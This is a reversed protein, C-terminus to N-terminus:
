MFASTTTILHKLSEIPEDFTAKSSIPISDLLAPLFTRPGTVAVCNFHVVHIAGKGGNGRKPHHRAMWEKLLATKGTGPQGSIYLSGPNKETVHKEWFEGLQKKEQDRGAMGEDKRESEISESDDSQDAFANTSGRDLQRSALLYLSVKSIDLAAVKTAAKSKPATKKMVPTKRQEDGSTEPDSTPASAAKAARKTTGKVKQRKPAKPSLVPTTAAQSAARPHRERLAYAM